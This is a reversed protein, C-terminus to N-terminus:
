AASLSDREARERTRNADRKELLKLWVESRTPFAPVAEWLREVPIEGVIAITAAHLWDAVDTGTFTAGVIVGRDEDLVLRSTGSTNRGHFSAGATASSPVDYARADLGHELAGQLTFGVAAVQPETFVVRPALSDDRGTHVPRGEIVKAAIHAQYKGMHTLLSRGNVDGIAFLWSLGPVSLTDEVAIFGGPQLGVTELGIEETLARRGVAVLLEDGAVRRGDSLEVTVGTEDRHVARASLGVHVEVGSELLADRLEEGAFPEERPLLREAAEIVVVNSGLAGYAQAMEVGVVGGGLVILRGPIEHATTVERNTWPRADALRPIPPLAAGSGVALVVALRAGYLQEGVRVHREGDLRGHGRILTIGRAQLWPIQQSDDLGNVIEDRRALVANVDLQGTLAEAAGPVRRAEALAQAPRLLAKSPMCAYFSCEGGVLDSEVIAVEHGNEALHGALVEGAPGAGIVIVDFTASEDCDVEDGVVRVSQGFAIRDRVGNAAPKPDPYYWAADLSREGEAALTLYSAEGKWPCTTHTDSPELYEDRVADRPFYHNGEVVVTTDSEAVTIGNWIARMNQEM